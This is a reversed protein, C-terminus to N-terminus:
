RRRFTRSRASRGCSAFTATRTATSATSRATPRIALASTSFAATTRAFRGEYETVSKDPDVSSASGYHKGIILVVIQCEGVSKYCSAEATSGSMYDVESWESMVPRYGLDEVVSRVTERIHQLGSITSSIFVSPIM